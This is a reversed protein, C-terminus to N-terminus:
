NTGQVTEQEVHHIEKDPLESTLRGLALCLGAIILVLPTILAIVTRWTSLTTKKIDGITGNKVIETLRDIAQTNEALATVTKETTHNQSEIMQKLLGATEKDLAM